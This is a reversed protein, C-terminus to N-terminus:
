LTAYKFFYKSNISSVLKQIEVVYNPNMVYITKDDEINKITDETSKIKLGTIPLYKNQKGPNIDIVKDVFTNARMMLLSFIVGKSGGGWIILNNELFNTNDPFNLAFDIANAADYEPVKIDSLDAIVCLYQSDFIRGSEYVKGFIKYFDSLRFSNVHECFFDFWANNKCIWYPM